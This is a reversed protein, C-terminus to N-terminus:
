PVNVRTSENIELLAAINETFTWFQNVLRYFVIKLSIVKVPCIKFALNPIIQGLIGKILSLQRGAIRGTTMSAFIIMPFLYLYLRTEAKRIPFYFSSIMATIFFRTNSVLKPYPPPTFTGRGQHRSHFFWLTLINGDQVEPVPHRAIM